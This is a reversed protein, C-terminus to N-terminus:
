YIIHVNDWGVTCHVYIRAMDEKGGLFIYFLKFQYKGVIDLTFFIMFNSLDYCYCYLFIVISLVQQMEERESILSEM